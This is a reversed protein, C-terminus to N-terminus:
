ESTPTNIQTGELLSKAKFSESLKKKHEDSKKKGRLSEAIKSKHEETFKRGTMTKRQKERAEQTIVRGQLAKSIKELKESSAKKGYNPNNVGGLSESLKKKTEESLKKGTMAESLKKRHELSKPVGKLKNKIKEITESSHGAVTGGTQLNYGNPSLTDLEKIYQIEKNNADEETCICIVEFKFNELGHASFASPLLKAGSQGRKHQGWRTEVRKYRTQGVYKKDNILNTISYIFVM